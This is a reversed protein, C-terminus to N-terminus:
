THQALARTSSTTGPRRVIPRQGYYCQATRTCVLSGLPDKSKEVQWAPPLRLGDKETGSMQATLGGTIRSAQCPLPAPPAPPHRCCYRHYQRGVSVAYLNIQEKNLILYRGTFLLPQSRRTAPRHAASSRKAVRPVASRVAPVHHLRHHRQDQCRRHAYEGVRRQSCADRGRPSSCERMSKRSRRNAPIRRRLTSPPSHQAHAATQRPVGRAKKAPKTPASTVGEECLALSALCAMCVLRLMM